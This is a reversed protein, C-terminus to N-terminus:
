GERKSTGRETLPVPSTRSPPTTIHERYSGQTPFGLVPLTKIELRSIHRHLSPRRLRLAMFGPGLKGKFAGTSPQHVASSARPEQYGRRRKGRYKRGGKEAKQRRGKSLGGLGVKRYQPQSAIHVQLAQMTHFFFIASQRAETFPGDGLSSSNSFIPMTYLSGANYSEGIKEGWGTGGGGRGRGRVRNVEFKM